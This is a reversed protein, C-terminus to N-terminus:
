GENGSGSPQSKLEEAKARRYIAKIRNWLSGFEWHKPDFKIQIKDGWESDVYSLFRNEEARCIREIQIKRKKTTKIGRKKLYGHTAEHVLISAYRYLSLEEKEEYDLRGFDIRCVEGPAYCASAYHEINQIYRINEQIRRYRRPDLENVFNLAEKTRAIFANDDNKNHNSDALVFGNYRDVVNSECLWM